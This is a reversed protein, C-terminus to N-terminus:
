VVHKPVHLIERPDPSAHMRGELAVPGIDQSLPGEALVQASGGVLPMMSPCHCRCPAGPLCDDACADDTCVDECADEMVLDALGVAHMLALAFM